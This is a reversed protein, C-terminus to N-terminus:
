PGKENLLENIHAVYTGKRDPYFGDHVYRVKGDRGILISTPMDKFDYQEAIAGQSDYVIKFRAPNQQLFRDALSKDHDVNVAIVVFGKASLSNQLGNMWPFSERCPNCWSAWFDLYVVKGKYPTLDLGAANAAPTLLCFALALLRPLRAGTTRFGM